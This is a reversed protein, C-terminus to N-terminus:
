VFLPEDDEGASDLGGDSGSGNRELVVSGSSKSSSSGLDAATDRTLPEAEDALGGKGSSGAQTSPVAEKEEEEEEEEAAAKLPQRSDKPAKSLAASDPKAAAAAASPSTRRAAPPTSTATTEKGSSAVASTTNARSSGSAALSGGEGGVLTAAPAEDADDAAAQKAAAAAAPGEAGAKGSAATPDATRSKTGPAYVAEEEEEEESGSATASTASGGGVGGTLSLAPLQGKEKASSAMGLSSSSGKAPPESDEAATTVPAKSESEVGLDAVASTKKTTDADRALGSGRALSAKAGNTPETPDDRDLGAEEQQEEEIRLKEETFPDM